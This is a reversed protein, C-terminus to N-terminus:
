DYSSCCRSLLRHSAETNVTYTKINNVKTAKEWIGKWDYMNNFSAQPWHETSDRVFLRTM